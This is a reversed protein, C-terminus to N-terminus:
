KTVKLSPLKVFTIEKLRRNCFTQQPESTERGDAELDQKPIM